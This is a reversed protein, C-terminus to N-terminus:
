SVSVSLMHYSGIKRPRVKNLLMRTLYTLIWQFINYNRNSRRRWWLLMLPEMMMVVFKITVTFKKGSFGATRRCDIIKAKLRRRKRQRGINQRIGPYLATCSVNKATLNTKMKLIHIIRSVMWQNSGNILFTQYHVIVICYWYYVSYLGITEIDLVLLLLVFGFSFDFTIGIAIAVFSNPNETFFPWYTTGLLIASWIACRQGWGM